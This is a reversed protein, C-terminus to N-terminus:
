VYISKNRINVCEYLIVASSEDANIKSYPGAQWKGVIKLGHQELLLEMELPEYLRLRFDEVETCSIVNEEWLEYRCLVTEIRTASDFQSLTNIVIKSGDPKNVSNGKWIGQSDGVAKLTEIEFVFKGGPQLRNSVFTLAEVIEEPTTLLCFSSSPIFILNYNGPLSFTNFSAEVLIAKLWLQDCKKRCVDLMHSSYDFGTITYGKELLPVLFRGTGCMPELIVGKAEEVHQLYFQLADEPPHPKDLEYYETCLGKYPVSEKNM